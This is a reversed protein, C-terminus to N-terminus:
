IVIDNESKDTAEEAPQVATEGMQERSAEHRLRREALYEQMSTFNFLLLSVGTLLAVLAANDRVGALALVAVGSALVVIPAFLYWGKVSLTRWSLMLYIIHFLGLIVMLVGMLLTIVNEFLYPKVIMIVGFCMGGVAPLIGLMDSQSRVEAKRLAVAVLYAMSPLLFLVGIVVAVWQLVDPITYFIILLIGVLMLLVNTLLHISIRKM